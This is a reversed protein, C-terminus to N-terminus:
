DQLKGEMVQNTVFRDYRLFAETTYCNSASMLMMYEVHRKHMLSPIRLEELYISVRCLGLVFERIALKDWASDEIHASPHLKGLDGDQQQVMDRISAWQPSGPSSGVAGPGGYQSVNGGTNQSDELAKVQTYLAFVKDEKDRVQDKLKLAELQQTLIVIREELHNTYDPSNVELSGRDIAKKRDKDSLPM